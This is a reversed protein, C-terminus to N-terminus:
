SVVFDSLALETCHESMALNLIAYIQNTKSEKKKIYLIIYIICIYYIYYM